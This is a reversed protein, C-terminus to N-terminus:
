CFGFLVEKFRFIKIKSQPDFPNAPFFFLCSYRDGEDLGVILFAKARDASCAFSNLRFKSLISFLVNLM